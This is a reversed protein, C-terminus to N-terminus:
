PPTLRPPTHISYLEYGFEYDYYTKTNRNKILEKIDKIRMYNTNEKGDWVNLMTEIGYLHLDAIANNRDEDNEKYGREYINKSFVVKLTLLWEVLAKEDVFDYQQFYGNVNWEHLSIM